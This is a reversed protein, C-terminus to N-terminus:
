VLEGKLLKLRVFVSMKRLSLEYYYVPNRIINIVFTCITFM